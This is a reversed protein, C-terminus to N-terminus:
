RARGEAIRADDGLVAAGLVRAGLTIEDGLRGVGVRGWGSSGVAVTTAV